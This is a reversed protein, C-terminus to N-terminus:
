RFNRVIRRIVWLRELSKFGDKVLNLKSKRGPYRFEEWVVPIETIRLKRKVSKALFERDFFWGEEKCSVLIDMGARNMMKLGCQSDQVSIPVLVDAYFKFLHATLHRWSSRSVQETNLLRSGVAIDAGQELELLLDLIHKPDASLDADIFCFVDADSNRAAEIIAIGKGKKSVSFLSAKGHMTVVESTGDSSGNDAVTIKFSLDPRTACVKLLEEITELIIPAENYAPICLEVTKM